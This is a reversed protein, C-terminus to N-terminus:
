FELRVGLSLRHLGLDYGGTVWLPSEAVRAGLTVEPRRLSDQFADLRPSFSLGLSYESYSHRIVTETRNEQVKVAETVHVNETTKEDREVSIGARDVYRTKVETIKTGVQTRVAESQTAETKVSSEAPTVPYFRYMLAAGLLM